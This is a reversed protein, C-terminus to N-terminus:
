ETNAVQETRRRPKPIAVTEVSGATEPSTLNLTPEQMKYDLMAKLDAVTQELGVVYDTVDRGMGDYYKM